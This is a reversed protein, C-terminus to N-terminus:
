LYFSWGRTPQSASEELFMLKLLRTAQGLQKRFLVHLAWNIAQKM